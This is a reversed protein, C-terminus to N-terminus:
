RFIDLFKKWLTEREVCEIEMYDVSANATLETQAILSDGLYWSVTGLHDGACVPAYFFPERSIEYRLSQEALFRNQIGSFSASITESWGGVVPLSLTEGPIQREEYLAFGDHYMAIHDNWDDPANLTVAILLVGDADGVQSRGRAVAIVCRNVGGVVTYTGVDM